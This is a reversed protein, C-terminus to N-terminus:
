FARIYPIPIPVEEQLRQAAELAFYPNRLMERALTVIDAQGTRIITDAQVPDTILGVAGTLIGSEARIKAAFPVQYGPGVLAKDVRAFGGGSAVIWDIGWDKVVRALAVADELELALPADSFDTASIKMTLLKGEPWVERIAGIVEKLFRLRNEFSGGYADERTNRLPSLFQHILYGHAGHLELVEFGAADARRAADKFEQVIGAIEEGSLARPMPWDPMAPVASSSVVQWGGEAISMPGFGEHMLHRSGKSGAHGIQIAPVAGQGRIFDTIRKLPAIQADDWLGLDGRTWRGTPSIATAEVIILGAGGVARSGLHVLHWDNAKGDDAAVYQQMPAVAIRNRLEVNRIKLPSFLHPMSSM